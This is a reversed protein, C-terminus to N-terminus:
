AVCLGAEDDEDPFLPIGFLTPFFFSLFTGAGSSHGGAEFSILVVHRLIVRADIFFSISRISRYTPSSMSATSPLCGGGCNSFLAAGGGGEGGEGGGGGCVHQERCAARTTLPHKSQTHLVGM